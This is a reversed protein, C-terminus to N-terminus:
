SDYIFAAWEVFDPDNASEHVGQEKISEVTFAVKFHFDKLDIAELGDRENNGTFASISPRDALFLYRIRVGSYGIVLTTFLVSLVFGIGTGIKKNGEIHFKPIEVGFLDYRDFINGIEKM